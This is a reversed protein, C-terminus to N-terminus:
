AGGGNKERLKAADQPHLGLDGYLREYHDLATRM